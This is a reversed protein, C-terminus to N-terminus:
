NLAQPKRTLVFTARPRPQSMISQSRSLLMWCLTCVRNGCFIHKKASLTFYPSRRSVSLVRLVYEERYMNGFYQWHRLYELQGWRFYNAGVGVRRVMQSHNTGFLPDSFHRCPACVTSTYKTSWANSLM